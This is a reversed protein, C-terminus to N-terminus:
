QYTIYLGIRSSCIRSCSDCPWVGLNSSPQAGFKHMSQEKTNWLRLENNKLSKSQKMASLQIHHATRHIEAGSVM